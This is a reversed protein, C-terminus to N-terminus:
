SHVTQLTREASSSQSCGAHGVLRLLIVARLM